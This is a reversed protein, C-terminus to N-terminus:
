APTLAVIVLRRASDVITEILADEGVEEHIVLKWKPSIRKNMLAFDPDVGIGLVVNAVVGRRTLM